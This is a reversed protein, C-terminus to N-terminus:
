ATSCKFHRYPNFTYTIGGTYEPHNYDRINSIQKEFLLNFTEKGMFIVFFSVVGIVVYLLAYM